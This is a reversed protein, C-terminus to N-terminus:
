FSSRFQELESPHIQVPIYEAGLFEAIRVRHRGNTFGVAWVTRSRQLIWDGFTQRLKREAFGIRPMAFRNSPNQGSIYEDRMTQPWESAPPMMNIYPDKCLSIFAKLPVIEVIYVTKADELDTEWLLNPYIAGKPLPIKYIDPSVASVKM